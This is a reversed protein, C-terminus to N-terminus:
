FVGRSCNSRWNCSRAVARHPVPSPGSMSTLQVTTPEGAKPARSCHPVSSVSSSLRRLFSNPLRRGPRHLALIPGSVRTSSGAFHYSCSLKSPSINRESRLNFSGSAAVGSKCGSNGARSVPPSRAPATLRVSGAVRAWTSSSAASSATSLMLSRSTCPNPTQLPRFNAPSESWSFTM